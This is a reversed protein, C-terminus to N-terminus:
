VVANAVQLPIGRNTRSFQIVKAILSAIGESKPVYADVNSMESQPIDIAGSHLIIKLSPCMHSLRAALASGNMVPMNYDLVAVDTKEIIGEAMTSIAMMPSDAAIVSFGCSEMVEARLHLQQVEDDVLLVVPTFPLEPINMITVAKTKRLARLVGFGHFGLAANMPKM